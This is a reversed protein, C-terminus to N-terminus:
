TRFVCQTASKEFEEEGREIASKREQLQTYRQTVEDVCHQFREARNKYTITFNSIKTAREKKVREEEEKAKKVREEKVKKV